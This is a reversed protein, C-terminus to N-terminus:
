PPTLIGYNKREARHRPIAEDGPPVVPAADTERSLVGEVPPNITFTSGTGKRSEVTITGEHDNMTGYAISM